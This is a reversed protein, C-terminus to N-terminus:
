FELSGALVFILALLVLWFWGDSLSRFNMIGDCTTSMVYGGFKYRNLTTTTTHRSKLLAV